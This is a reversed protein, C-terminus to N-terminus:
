EAAGEQASTAEPPADEHPAGEQPAGEHRHAEEHAPADEHRPAVVRRPGAGPLAEGRSLRLGAMSPAGGAGSEDNAGPREDPFGALIRSTERFSCLKAGRTPRVEGGRGARLEDVLAKASDPTQDDFFEWNVM